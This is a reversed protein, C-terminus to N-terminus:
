GTAPRRWRDRWAPARRPGSARAVLDALEAGRDEFEFVREDRVAQMDDALRRAGSSRASVSDAIASLANPRRSAPAATRASTAVPEISAAMAADAAARLRLFRALSEVFKRAEVPKSASSWSIGASIRASSPRNMAGTTPPSRMRM